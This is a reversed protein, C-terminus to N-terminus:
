FIVCISIWFSNKLSDPFRLDDTFSIIVLIIGRLCRWGVREKRELIDRKGGIRMRQRFL